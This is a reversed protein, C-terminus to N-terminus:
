HCILGLLNSLVLYVYILNKHNTFLCNIPLFKLILWLNNTQVYTVYQGEILDDISLHVQTFLRFLHIRDFIDSYWRSRHVHNFETCIRVGVPLLHTDFLWIVLHWPRSSNTLKLELQLWNPVLHGCSLWSWVSPKPRWHGVTSCGLWFAFSTSSYDSSSQTLIYCDTETELEGRVCLWYWGKWILHSLYIKIFFHTWENM